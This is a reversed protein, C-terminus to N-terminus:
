AIVTYGSPATESLYLTLSSWINSVSAIGQDTVVVKVYIFVANSNGPESCNYLTTGTSTSPSSIFGTLAWINGTGSQTWAINNSTDYTYSTDTGTINYLNVSLDDKTYSAPAAALEWAKNNTGTLNYLWSGTTTASVGGFAEPLGSANAHAWVYISVGTPTNGLDAKYLYIPSSERNVVMFAATYIKTTNDCWTGYNLTQNKTNNQLVYYTTSSVAVTKDVGVLAIYAGKADVSLQVSTKTGVYQTAYLGGLITAIAVIVLAKKWIKMEKDGFLLM